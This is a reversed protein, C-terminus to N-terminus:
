GAAPGAPKRSAYIIALVATALMLLAAVGNGAVAVRPYEWGETIVQGFSLFMNVTWGLLLAGGAVRARLGLAYLAAIVAVVLGAAIFVILPYDTSLFTSAGWGSGYNNGDQAYVRNLWVGTWALPGLVTGALLLAPIIRPAAWRDRGHIRRMARLLIITAIVGAVDGVAGALFSAKAHNSRDASLLHYGGIALVDYLVAAVSIFTAGLVYPLLPGRIRRAALAIIAVVILIADAGYGFATSRGPATNQNVAVNGIFAVASIIALILGAVAQRDQSSGAGTV